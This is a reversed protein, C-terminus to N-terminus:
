QRVIRVYSSNIESVKGTGAMGMDAALEAQLLKMVQVVGPQGFSALGWLYPRGVGVASAGLALAKFVDTGRRFGGDVLVPIKGGAAQVCEPLAKITSGVQDLQRAGHNSVIVGTLGYKVAQATDESTLVGKVVVPIKSVERLQQLTDWTPTPLPRASPPDGAAWLVDDPKYIPKGGADRPVGGAQCWSRVLGNHMSRERHSVIYIDVTVSIGSCGEDQLREAFAAMQTKNRFEAATTYQWWVKPGKGLSFADTGGATIMMANATKAAYATEQEGNAVFCNKGNTVTLYIPQTLQKGFLNISTDIKSVDNALFHPRIVIDDFHARNARLSAEDDSGEDMYDWSIPDLKAKAVKAFDFVNVQKLLETLESYKKDAKLLPSAALFQCFARLAQRRTMTFM